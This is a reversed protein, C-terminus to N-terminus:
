LLSEKLIQIDEAPHTTEAIIDMPSALKVVEVIWDLPIVSESLRSHRDLRSGMEASSGNAHVLQIEGVVNLIDDVVSPDDAGGGVWLHCTDLCFGIHPSDVHEWMEYLDDVFRTMSHSGSPANEVLIKTPYDKQLTMKWQHLAKKKNGHKWSGGHIVLGEANLKAAEVTQAQLTHYSRELVGPRFTSLNILYPAHVYIPSAAAGRPPKTQNWKQPSGLCIQVVDAGIEEQSRRSHHMPVHAGIRM